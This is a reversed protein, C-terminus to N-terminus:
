TRHLFTIIMEQALFTLEKLLIVMLHDLMSLTQHQTHLKKKKKRHLTTKNKTKGEDEAPKIRIVSMKM